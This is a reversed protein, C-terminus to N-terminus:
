EYDSQYCLVLEDLIGIKNVVFEHIKKGWGDAIYVTDGIKCPLRVLLGDAEAQEYECLKRLCKEFQKIAGDTYGQVTVKHNIIYVKGDEIGILRENTM